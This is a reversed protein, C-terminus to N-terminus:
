LSGSDIRTKRTHGLRKTGNYKGGEFLKQMLELVKRISRSKLYIEERESEPDSDAVIGAGAQWYLMGNALVASRILICTDAEKDTVWGVAGGYPGRYSTELEAIIQLARVKPAGSLTGAPLSGLVAELATVNPKLRGTVDTVMHLVAGYAEVRKLGSVKVGGADCIANADCYKGVDNRGLDVLMNHEAVEKPHTSLSYARANDDEQNKGRMRTGALPRILMKREKVRVMVEPSAGVLISGNGFDIHFLYPSANEKRLLRYFDLSYEAPLPTQFRRSLVVQFVDGAAIHEKAKVVMAETEADTLNSEIHIGPCGRVTDTFKYSRLKKELWDLQGNAENYLGPCSGADCLMNVILFLTQSIHDFVMVHRFFLFSADPLNLEDKPHRLVAPELLSVAEHGFYGIAGGTFFERTKEPSFMKLLGAMAELPNQFTRDVLKGPPYSAPRLYKFMGEGRSIQFSAYPNVAIVSYRGQEKDYGASELIASGELSRLAAYAALPTIFDTLIERIVTAVIKGQAIAKQVSSEFQEFTTQNLM